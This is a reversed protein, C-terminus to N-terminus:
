TTKVVEPGDTMCNDMHETYLVKIFPPRFAVDSVVEKAGNMPLHLPLASVQSIAGTARRIADPGSDNTPKLQWRFLDRMRMRFRKNIAILLLPSATPMWYISLIAVHLLPVDVEQYARGESIVITTAYYVSGIIFPVITVVFLCTMSKLSRVEAEWSIPIDRHNLKVQQGHARMEKIIYLQRFTYAYHVAGFIIAVTCTICAAIVYAIVLPYLRREEFWRSPAYCSLVGDEKGVIQGGQLLGLVGTFIAKIWVAAVQIYTRRSYPKWEFFHLVAKYRERSIYMQLLIQPINVMYTIFQNLSCMTQGLVWEKTVTSILLTLTLFLSFLNNTAMSYLYININNQGNVSSAKVLLAILLLNSVLGVLLQLLLVPTFIVALDPLRSTNAQSTNLASTEDM